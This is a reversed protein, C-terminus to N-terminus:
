SMELTQRVLFFGSKQTKLPNPFTSLFNGQNIMGHRTVIVVKHPHTMHLHLTGTDNDKINIASDTKM